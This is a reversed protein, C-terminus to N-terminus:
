ISPFVVITAGTQTLLCNEIPWKINIPQALKWKTMQYKYNYWQILCKTVYEDTTAAKNNGPIEMKWM